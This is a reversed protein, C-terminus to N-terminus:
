RKYPDFFESVCQSGHYWASQREAGAHGDFYLVASGNGAHAGTRDDHEFSTTDMKSDKYRPRFYIEGSMKQTPAPNCIMLMCTSNKVTAVNCCSGAGNPYHLMGNVYNGNIAEFTATASENRQMIPCEFQIVRTQKTWDPVGLYGALHSMLNPTMTNTKECDGDFEPSFPMIGNNADTYQSYALGLQKKNNVCTIELGKMRAKNLAPLLIGALIAIIAIVVLLEILTFQKRKMKKEKTRGFVTKPNKTTPCM